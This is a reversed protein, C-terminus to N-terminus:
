NFILVIGSSGLDTGEKIRALSNGLDDQYAWSSPVSGNDASPLGKFPFDTEPTSVAEEGVM